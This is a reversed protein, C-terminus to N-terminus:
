KLSWIRTNAFSCTGKGSDLAAWYAFYGASRAKSGDYFSGIRQNNIYLTFKNDEAAFVFHNVSGSDMKIADAWRVKDTVRKVTLGNKGVDIVWGPLGSFRLFAFLYQTGNEFNVESRFFWGCQLIGTSDWTVDTMMYFDGANLDQAFPIWSYTLPTDMVLDAPSDDQVWAMSGKDTPLGLRTLEAKFDVAVKEAAQTSKAASTAKKDPTATSTATPLPTATYTATPPPTPTYTPTATPTDTPIPTNTPLPTPTPTPQAAGLGSFVCANLFMFTCALLSVIRTRTNM